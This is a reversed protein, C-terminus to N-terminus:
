ALQAERVIADIEHELAEGHPYSKFFGAVQMSEFARIIVQWGEGYIMCSRLDGIGIRSADSRCTRIMARLPDDSEDFDFVDNEEVFRDLMNGEQDLLFLGVVGEIERLNEMAAQLNPTISELQRHDKLQEPAHESPQRLCHRIHGLLQTAKPDQPALELLYETLEHAAQFNGTRALMLSLLLLTDYNGPQLEYSENLHTLAQERDYEDRTSNFRHFYLKGLILHSQWHNPHFRSAEGAYRAARDFDGVAAALDCAKSLLRLSRDTELLRDIRRLSRMAQKTKQARYLKDVTRHDPFRRRANALVKVAKEGDGLEAFLRALRMSQGPGPSSRYRKIAKRLRRRRLSNLISSIFSIM